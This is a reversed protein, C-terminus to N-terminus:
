FDLAGTDAIVHVPQTPFGARDCDFRREPLWATSLFCCARAFDTNEGKSVSWHDLLMLVPRDLESDLPLRLKGFNAFFPTWCMAVALLFGAALFAGAFFRVTLAANM